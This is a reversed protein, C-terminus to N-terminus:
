YVNGSGRLAKQKKEGRGSEGWIDVLLNRWWGGKSGRGEAKEKRSAEV